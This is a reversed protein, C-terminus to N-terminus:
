PVQGQRLNEYAAAIRGGVPYETGSDDDAGATLHLYFNLIIFEGNDSQRQTDLCFNGVFLWYM